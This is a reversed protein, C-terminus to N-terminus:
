ELTTIGRRIAYKVLAPLDRLDLKQMVRSRYTEVSRPSLHLIRAAEVSTKGEVILRLVDLERKSLPSALDEMLAESALLPKPPGSTKRRTSPTPDRKEPQSQAM